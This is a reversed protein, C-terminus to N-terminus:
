LDKFDEPRLVGDSDRLKDAVKEQTTRTDPEVFDMEVTAQDDGNATIKLARQMQVVPAPVNVIPAPQPPVNVVPAPLNVIPAPLNVVPAPINIVLRLETEGVRIIQPENPTAEIFVPQAVKVQIPAEITEIGIPDGNGDRIIQDNEDRMLRYGNKNLVTDVTREDDEAQRAAKRQQDAEVWKYSHSSAGQHIGAISM